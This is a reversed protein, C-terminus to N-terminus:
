VTILRISPEFGETEALALSRIYILNESEHMSEFKDRLTRPNHGFWGTPRGRQSRAPGAVQPRIEGLSRDPERRPGGDAGEILLRTEMGARKLRAPISLIITPTNDDGRCSRMPGIDSAVIAPIANPRIAIDLTDRRIDIRDILRQLLLRRRCPETERWRRALEDADHAVVM